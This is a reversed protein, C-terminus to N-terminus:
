YQKYYGVIEKICDCAYDAFQPPAICEDLHELYCVTNDYQSFKSEMRENCAELCAEKEGSPKADM